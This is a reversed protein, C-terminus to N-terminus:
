HQSDSHAAEDVAAVEDIMHVYRRLVGARQHTDTVADTGDGAENRWVDCGSNSLRDTFAQWM